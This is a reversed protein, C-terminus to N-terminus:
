HIFCNWEGIRYVPNKDFWYDLFPIQGMVCFYHIAQEVIWLLKNFDRGKELCGIPESFTM